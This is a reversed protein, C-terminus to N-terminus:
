IDLKRVGTVRSILEAAIDDPVMDAAEELTDCDDLRADWGSNRHTVHVAVRHKSGVGLGM